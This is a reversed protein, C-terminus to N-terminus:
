ISAEETAPGEGRRRKQIRVDQNPFPLIRYSGMLRSTVRDSYLERMDNMGLNTSIITSRQRLLRENLCRFLSTGVFLNSLEAGLDDIILLDCTFILDTEEEKEERGFTLKEMREFLQVSSLYLVSVFRDLLEKAICNSLFTKGSGAQGILLLNRHETEFTEIFERAAALNRRMMDRSTQGQGDRQEDDYYDLSFASFNERELVNRVASQDYLMQLAARKRCACPEGPATFGTDRCLPCVYTLELYDAPLDAAALLRARKSRLGSVQGEALAEDMANGLVRGRARAFERDALQEELERLGPVSEYAKRRREERQLMSNRRREGYERELLDVQANTLAM